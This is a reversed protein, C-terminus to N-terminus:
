RCLEMHVLLSPASHSLSGSAPGRVVRAGSLSPGRQHRCPGSDGEVCSARRGGPLPEAKNPLKLRSSMSLTRPEFSPFPLGREPAGLEQSYLKPCIM